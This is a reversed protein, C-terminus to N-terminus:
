CTKEITGFHFKSTKRKQVQFGFDSFRKSRFHDKLIVRKRAIRCAHDVIEETLGEFTAFRSLGRIGDSELISEEFMPDFYVCDYSNDTLQSLIEISQKNIVTIQRMADNMVQLGSDWAQLGTRVLHALYPNAEIGTVIGSTGVAYSAVISDSALGLTCDLISMGPELRAAQLFPDGEGKLLRKVRFMSSNPHFFFPEEEGFPYLEMRNKGVVICDDEENEMIALVSRKKRSVYNARLEQATQKAKNVMEKNTRGATTIIMGVGACINTFSLFSTRHCGKQYTHM